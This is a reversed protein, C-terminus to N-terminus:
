IVYKYDHNDREIVTIPVYKFPSISTIFLASPALQYKGMTTTICASLSFLM